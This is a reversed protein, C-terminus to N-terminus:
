IISFDSMRKKEGLTTFCKLRAEVGEM